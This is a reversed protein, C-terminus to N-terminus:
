RSIDKVLRGNAMSRQTQVKRSSDKWGHMWVANGDSKLAYGESGDNGVNISYSDEYKQSYSSQGFVPQIMLLCAVTFFTNLSM